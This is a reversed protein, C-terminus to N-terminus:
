AVRAKRGALAPDLANRSVYLAGGSLSSREFAGILNRGDDGIQITVLDRNGPVWIALRGDPPTPITVADTQYVSETNTIDAADPPHRGCWVLRREFPVLSQRNALSALPFRKPGTATQVVLADGAAVEQPLLEDLASVEKPEKAM